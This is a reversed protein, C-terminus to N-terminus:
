NDVLVLSQIRTLFDPYLPHVAVGMQMFACESSISGRVTRTCRGTSPQQAKKIYTEEQVMSETSDDVSNGELM